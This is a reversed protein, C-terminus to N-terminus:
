RGHGHQQDRKRTVREAHDTRQEVPSVNEPLAVALSLAKATQRPESAEGDDRNCGANKVLAAGVTLGVGAAASVGLLWLGFSALHATGIMAGVIISATGILAGRGLADLISAGVTHHTEGDDSYRRRM